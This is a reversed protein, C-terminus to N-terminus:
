DTVPTIVSLPETRSSSVRTEGNCSNDGIVIGDELIVCAGVGQCSNEGIVPAAEVESVGEPSWIGFAAFAVLIAIVSFALVRRSM